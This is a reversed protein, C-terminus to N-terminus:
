KQRRRLLLFAVGIAAILTLLEFGPVGPTKYIKMTVAAADTYGTFTGTIQYNASEEKVDPATLECAGNVGSYYDVGNFTVKAGTVGAGADNAITVVFKQTGSVKGSPPIITLKPVNLVMITGSVSTYGEATATIPYALSTTVSPATITAVGTTTPWTQGNFTFTVPADTILVGNSKAEVTFTKGEDVSPDNSLTMPKRASAVIVFANDPDTENEIYITVNGSAQATISFFVKGASDTFQDTPLKALISENLAIGHDLGIRVGKLPTGTAPHTVTITVLTAEGNYIIAPSPTATATTVRLLGEAHRAEGGNDPTFTFTVNGLTTANVEDLTGVGNEIAIQNSQGPYSANPLSTMNNITLSGNSAPTLQFTMNIAKDIKWALTSPSSTVTYNTILLTANNGRSDHTANYAYLYYRGGSLIIEEEMISYDATKSWADDGTVLAGTSNYLAVTLGSTAPHGGDVLGVTIDYTAADGAYATTPTVNVRMNHNRDMIVKTYGWYNGYWRAAVTINQPASAPTNADKKHPQIWFTYQGNLGKGAANTGNTQNFKLPVDQWMLIVYANKVPTGDMDTVTVTLNYDAGVNFSDVASVVTTGNVIEITETATGNDDGPWDISLTITGGPKKPTVAATWRGNTGSYVADVPYLIDGAITINEANEWGNDGYYAQGIADSIDTGFIDFTLTITNAQNGGSVYAPVDVKKDGAKGSGDNVVVLQVPPNASKVIFSESNNWEYIGDSNSDYGFVIRWTGNVNLSNIGDTLNQWGHHSTNALQYRPIVLTYNGLGTSNIFAKDTYTSGHRLKIAEKNVAIGNGDNDTVNIDIQTQYGWYITTNTLVINPKGTEVTFTTETAVKEPPDWPGMHTYNYYESAASPHTPFSGSYDSGYYESYNDNNEDPYYYTSNQTDFDRYAKVTYEGAMSFNAAEIKIAETVGTARWRHYITSNDPGMIAIMCGTDSGTNVTITKTGTDGYKFDTVSEISYNTSANVWIYGAYSSPSNGLHHANNDFIWMGSRNFTIASGGTDLTASDSPAVVVVRAGYGAVQYPGAWNFVNANGGSGGSRYIPYYLYINGTENWKSTNIAVSSYSVGYELDTTANGWDNLGPISDIYVTRNDNTAFRRKPAVTTANYSYVSIVYTGENADTIDWNYYRASTNQKLVGGITLYYHTANSAGWTINVTEVLPTYHSFAAPATISFATPTAKVVQNPLVVIATMVSLLMLTVLALSKIKNNVNKM